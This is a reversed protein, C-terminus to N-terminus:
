LNIIINLSDVAIVPRLMVRQGNKEKILDIFGFRELLKVDDSVTKFDRKLLKSLSYISRPKDKKITYLMRGKEKTLIKRLIELSSFDYDEKEGKFRKFLTTFTDSETTLTIERTKQSM